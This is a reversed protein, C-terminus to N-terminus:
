RGTLRSDIEAGTFLELDVMAQWVGLVHDYYNKKSMLYAAVGELVDKAEATGSSYGAASFTMWKRTSKVQQRAVSQICDALTDAANYVATIITLTSTM